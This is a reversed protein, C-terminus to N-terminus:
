IEIENEGEGERGRTCIYVRACMCVMGAAIAIITWFSVFDM